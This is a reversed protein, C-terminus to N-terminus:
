FVQLAGSGQIFKISRNNLSEMISCTIQYNTIIMFQLISSIFTFYEFLFIDFM